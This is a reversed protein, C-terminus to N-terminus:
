ETKDDLMKRAQNVYAKYVVAEAANLDKGETNKWIARKLTRAQHVRERTIKYQGIQARRRRNAETSTGYFKSEYYKIAPEVMSKMITKRDNDYIKWAADLSKNEGTKLPRAQRPRVPAGESRTNWSM